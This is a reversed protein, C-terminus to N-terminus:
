LSGDCIQVQYGKNTLFNAIPELPKVIDLFFGSLYLRSTRGYWIDKWEPLTVGGIYIGAIIISKVNPMTLKPNRRQHHSLAYGTFESAKAFGITDIGTSDALIRINKSLTQKNM